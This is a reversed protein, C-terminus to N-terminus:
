TEFELLEKKIEPGFAFGGLRGKAALVRHCPIFLPFPNKRCISGIARSAKPSGALSALEGYSVKRGFLVRKLASIANLSFTPLNQRPLFHMPAEQKMSYTELWMEIEEYLKESLISAFKLTFETSKELKVTFETKKDFLVVVELKPGQLFIKVRFSPSITKNM